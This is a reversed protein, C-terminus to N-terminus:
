IFDKYNRRSADPLHKSIADQLTILRPSEGIELGKYFAALLKDTSRKIQVLDSMEDSMDGNTGHLRYFAAGAQGLLDMM